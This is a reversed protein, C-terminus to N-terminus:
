RRGWSTRGMADQTQGAEFDSYEPKRDSDNTKPAGKGAKHRSHEEADRREELWSETSGVQHLLVRKFARRGKGERSDGNGRAKGVKSAIERV